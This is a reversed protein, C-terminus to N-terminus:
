VLLIIKLQQMDMSIKLFPNPPSPFSIADLVLLQQQLQPRLAPTSPSMQSPPILYNIRQGYCAPNASCM